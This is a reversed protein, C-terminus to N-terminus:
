QIYSEIFSLNSGLFRGLQMKKRGLNNKIKKIILLLEFLHSIFVYLLTARGNGSLHNDVHHHHHGAPGTSSGLQVYLGAYHLTGVLVAFSGM